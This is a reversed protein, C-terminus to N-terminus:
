IYDPADEQVKVNRHAHRGPFNGVYEVVALKQKSNTLWSIRRRYNTDAKLTAYNRQLVTVESDAPQPNLASYTKPKRYLCYLGDHKMISKFVGEDHMNWMIICPKQHLEMQNICAETM